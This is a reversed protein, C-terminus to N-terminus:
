IMVQATWLQELVSIAGAEQLRGRPLDGGKALSAVAFSAVAFFKVVKM